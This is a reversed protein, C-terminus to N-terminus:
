AQLSNLQSGLWSSQSQAQSLATEMSTFQARLAKERLALRVDLDAMRATAATQADQAAAIRSAMISKNTGDGKLWPDIFRDFRQALGETAYSGTINTFLAKTDGFGAALKETLKTTDLTLKGAVANADVAGTSKGTTIGVESLQDVDGPRGTVVDSVAARLRSLLISLGTDGRLIGKERDAQTQPNPVRKEDLEAQIFEITSNYQDVFAKVKDAIAGTNAGAQGVTIGVASTTSSKLTLELGPLVDTIVNSARDTYATGDVTFSANQAAQTQTFGLATALDYGNGADGDSVTIANAMGTAKGSLVLKNNIVSAFVPTDTTGNIRDAITALTDGATIAVDVTKAGVAIRLTDASTASTISSGQTMQAARALATVSVSYGGAAAGGTRRVAVKTPDASSVDQQDGWTGADRLGAVANSLNRLRTQIDTLTTQRAQEVAKQQALRTKPRSELAMLQTVITNTDLGSALGGFNVTPSFLSSV